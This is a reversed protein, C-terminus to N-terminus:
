GNARMTNARQRSSLRAATPKDSYRPVRYCDIKGAQLDAHLGSTFLPLKVWIADVQTADKMQLM